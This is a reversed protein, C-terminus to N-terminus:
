RPRPMSAARGPRPPRRTSERRHAMIFVKYSLINLLLFAMQYIYVKYLLACLYTCCM